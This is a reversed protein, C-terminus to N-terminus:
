NRGIDEKCLIGELRLFKIYNLLIILTSKKLIENVNSNSHIITKETVLFLALGPLKFGDL